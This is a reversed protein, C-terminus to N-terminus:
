TNKNWLNLKTALTNIISNVEASLKLMYIFSAYFVGIVASKYIINVLFNSTDPLIFGLLYTVVLILLVKLSASDFPQIKMKVWIYLVKFTNDVVFSFLTAIAAGVLGYIPILWLNLLVASAILVINSTLNFRYYNTAGIILSNAGTAMSYVRALGLFLFAMEGGRFKEPLLTFIDFVSTWIFLFIIGAFILQNLCSATYIKKIQDMDNEEWAKSLLPRAIAILSKNPTNIVSAMFFAITYKAVNVLADPALKGIMIMDIRGILLNGGAILFVFLGYDLLQRTNLGKFGFNLQLYNNKILFGTLILFQLAYGLTFLIMFWWLDILGFFYLVLLISAMARRVVEKLFMPFITRIYSQSIASFVEFYINFLVLPVLVFGYEHVLPEDTLWNLFEVKYFGFFVTFALIGVLPLLIGFAFLQKKAQDSYAAYYRVILNPAGLQSFTSVVLAYSLLLNVLGMYEPNDGFAWPYLVLTNFAGLAVGVYASVSNWITQNIVRGM